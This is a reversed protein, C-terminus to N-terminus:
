LQLWKYSEAFNDEQSHVPSPWDSSMFVNEMKAARHQVTHYLPGHCPAIMLNHEWWPRAVAKTVKDASILSCPRGARAPFHERTVHHSSCNTQLATDLCQLAGAASRCVQLGASAYYQSHSRPELCWCYPSAVTWKSHIVEM